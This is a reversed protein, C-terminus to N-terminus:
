DARMQLRLLRGSRAVSWGERQLPWRAADLFTKAAVGDVLRLDWHLMPDRPAKLHHVPSLIHPKPHSPRDLQRIRSPL